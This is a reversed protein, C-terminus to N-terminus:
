VPMLMAVHVELEQADTNSYKMQEIVASFLLFHLQWILFLATGACSFVPLSSGLHYDRVTLQELILGEKKTFMLEDFEKHIKDLIFRLYTISVM